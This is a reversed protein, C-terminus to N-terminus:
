HDLPMQSYHLPVVFVEPALYCFVTIDCLTSTAIKFVLIELTFFVKTKVVTPSTPIVRLHGLKDM